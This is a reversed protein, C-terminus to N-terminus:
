RSLHHVIGEVSTTLCDYDAFAAHHDPLRDVMRRFGKSSAYAGHIYLINETVFERRPDQRHGHQMATYLAANCCKFRGAGDTNGGFETPVLSNLILEPYQQHIM